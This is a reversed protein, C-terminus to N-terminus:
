GIYCDTLTKTKNKHRKKKLCVNFKIKFYSCEKVPLNSLPVHITDELVNQFKIIDM